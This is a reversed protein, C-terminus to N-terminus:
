SPAASAFLQLFLADDWPHGWPGDQALHRSFGGRTGLTLFGYLEGDVTVAVAEGEPAWILEIDERRAGRHQAGPGAYGACAPPPGGKYKPLDAIPPAPIRNYVWCDAVLEPSDPLTLYLWASTGDDEFFAWRRSVPHQQHVLTSQNEPPM